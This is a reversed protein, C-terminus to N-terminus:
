FRGNALDLINSSSGMCGQVASVILMLSQSQHFNNKDRTIAVHYFTHSTFITPTSAATNATTTVERAPSKKAERQFFKENLPFCTNTLSSAVSRWTHQVLRLWTVPPELPIPLHRASHENLRPASRTVRNALLLTLWRFREGTTVYQQTSGPYAATLVLSVVLATERELLRTALPLASNM